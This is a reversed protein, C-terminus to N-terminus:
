SPSVIASHEFDFPVFVQKFHQGPYEDSIWVFTDTPKHRVNQFVGGDRAGGVFCIELGVPEYEDTPEIIM